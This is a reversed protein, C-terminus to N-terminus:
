VALCEVYVAFYFVCVADCQMVGFGSCASCCLSSVVHGVVRVVVNCQLASSVCQLAGRVYVAACQLVGCVCQLVPLARCPCCHTDSCRVALCLVCCCVACTSCCVTCASCCVAVGPNSLMALLVQWQMVSCCMAVCQVCVAVCQVRVAVCPTSSM